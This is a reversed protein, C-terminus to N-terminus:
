AISERYPDGEIGEKGKREHSPVSPQYTESIPTRIAKETPPPTPPTAPAVSSSAAVPTNGEPTPQESQNASALITNRAQEAETFVKETAEPHELLRELEKRVPEFVVKSIDAGIMIATAGDLGIEKMLNPILNEIKEFGLLILMVENELKQWQDLHLKHTDALSRLHQQVEASTIANQVVPPLMKFRKAFEEQLNMQNPDM